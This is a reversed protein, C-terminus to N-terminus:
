REEEESTYEPLRQMVSLVEREFAGKQKTTKGGVHLAGRADELAWVQSHSVFSLFTTVMLAGFGAYVLPVGPDSKLELGTSGALSDVLVTVGDVLIPKGSGPRRVGAFSGDQAYLAVSQFDRAVLSV